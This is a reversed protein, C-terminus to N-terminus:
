VDLLGLNSRAEKAAERVWFHTDEEASALAQAVRSQIAEPVISVKGLSQMAAIRVDGVSDGCALLMGELATLQESEKENRAALDGLAYVAAVRVSPAIEVAEDVAKALGEVAESSQLYGLAVAAALRLTQTTDEVEAPAEDAEEDSIAPAPVPPRAALVALLPITAEAAEFTGLTTAAGERVLLDEQEDSLVTILTPIAQKAGLRGLALTVDKRVYEDKDNQLLPTLLQGHEPGGCMAILMVANSRVLPNANTLLTEVMSVVREGQGSLAEIARTAAATDDGDLAQVHERIKAAGQYTTVAYVGGLVIILVAIATISRTNM